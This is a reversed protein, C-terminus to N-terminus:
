ALVGITEIQEGGAVALGYTIADRMGYGNVPPIQNVAVGERVYGAREAVRESGPNGPIVHLQLRRLMPVAGQLWEHLLLLAGTALGRGRYEPLVFYFTEVIGADHAYPHEAGITGAARGDALEIVFRIADGRERAAVSRRIWVRAADEGLDQPIFTWDPVDSRSAAVLLGADEEALVRLSLGEGGVVGVSRTDVWAIM